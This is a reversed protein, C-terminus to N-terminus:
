QANLSHTSKRRKLEELTKELGQRFSVVPKYKLKKRAKDISLTRSCGLVCTSYRTLPPEFTKPLFSYIIELASAIKLATSLSLPISKFEYGLQSCIYALTSHIAVPEGNTINYAEGLSDTSSLLSLKLAEVVNEVCTLDIKQQGDAIKLLKGKKALKLIRPLIHPDDAGFLGQPRLILGPLGNKFAEFVIEEALRKSKSYHNIPQPLVEDETVLIKNTPQVYISPTSVHILRQVKSEMCVRVISRTGEVNAKYFDTWAGWPSALAASHVVFSDSTFLNQHHHIEDLSSRIFQIGYEQLAKGITENRGFGIVEHQSAMHRCFESGLFGTAGTVLIRM